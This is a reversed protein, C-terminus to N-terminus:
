SRWCRRKKSRGVVVAREWKAHAGDKRVAMVQVGKTVIPLIVDGVPGQEIKPLMEVEQSLKARKAGTQKHAAAGRKKQKKKKQLANIWTPQKKGRRALEQAIAALM